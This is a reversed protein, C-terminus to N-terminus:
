SLDCGSPGAGSYLSSALTGIGQGHFVRSWLWVVWLWLRPRRTISKLSTPICRELVPQRPEGKSLSLIQKTLTEVIDEQLKKCALKFITGGVCQKSAGRQLPFVPM